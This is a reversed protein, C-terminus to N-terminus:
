IFMKELLSKKINKLKECKRQHLAILSELNNFLKGIKFQESTKAIKVEIDKYDSFYLHKIVSGVLLNELKTCELINYLYMINNHKNKNALIASTSTVFTNEDMLKIKGASGDKVISIYKEPVFYKNTYGILQNTDSVKYKGESLVSNKHLPSPYYNFLDEIKCQEWAEVFGKFRIKPTVEGDVPFMKELLSRKMNILKEYKRQHLTILSDFDSILHSIKIQEELKPYYSEFGLVDNVSLNTQKVGDDFDLFYQNRNMRLSLFKNDINTIPTIAAIRQNLSYLGTKEILYTKAIARGNPVDSLVFCIDGKYLPEKQKSTKKIVGGETSIFKSNVVIYEGNFSINDEHAKGNRYSAINLLKRQEWSEIFEKLTIKFDIKNHHLFVKELVIKKHKYLKTVLVSFLFNNKYVDKILYNLAQFSNQQHLTILSDLNGLLKAIKEQEAYSPYLVELTEFDPKSIVFRQVGKAKLAMQKRLYVTDFGYNPYTLYFVNYKPRYRILHYSYVTNPLNEEIVLVHGIDEATESTPTFYIDGALVNNNKIQEPRATVQMLETCNNTTIKLRNYVDM